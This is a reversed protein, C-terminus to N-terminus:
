SRKESVYNWKFNNCFYYLQHEQAYTHKRSKESSIKVRAVRPSFYTRLPTLFMKIGAFMLEITKKYMDVKAEYLTQDEERYFIWNSHTGKWYSIKYDRVFSVRVGGQTAIRTITTLNVLDIQIYQDYNRYNQSGGSADVCWAGYSAINKNLRAQWGYATTRHAVGSTTIQSNKIRGDEM